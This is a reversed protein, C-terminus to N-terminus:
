VLAQQDGAFDSGAGEDMAREMGARTYEM